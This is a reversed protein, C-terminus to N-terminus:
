FTQKFIKSYVKVIFVPTITIIIDFFHKKLSNELTFSDYIEKSVAISLVIIFTHKFSVGRSKLVLSIILGISFHLIPGLTLDGYVPYHSLYAFIKRIENNLLILSEM